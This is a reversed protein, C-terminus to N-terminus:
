IKAALVTLRLTQRTTFGLWEYLAIASINDTFVHLFPMVGEDRLKSV